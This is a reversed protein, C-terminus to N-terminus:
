QVDAGTGYNRKWGSNVHENLASSVNWLESARNIVEGLAPEV